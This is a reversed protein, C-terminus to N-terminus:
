EGLNYYVSDNWATRYVVSLDYLENTSWKYVYRSADIWYNTDEKLEISYEKWMLKKFGEFCETHVLM